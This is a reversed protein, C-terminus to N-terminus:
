NCGFLMMEWSKSSKSLAGRFDDWGGWRPRHASPVDLRAPIFCIPGRMPAPDQLTPNIRTDKVEYSDVKYAAHYLNKKCTSYDTTTGKWYVSLPSRSRTLSLMFSIGASQAYWTYTISLSPPPFPLTYKRYLSDTKRGNENRLIINLDINSYNLFYTVRQFNWTTISPNHFCGFFSLSFTPAKLDLESM